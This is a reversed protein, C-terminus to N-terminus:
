QCREALAEIHGAEGEERSWERPRCVQQLTEDGQCKYGRRHGDGAEGSCTEKSLKDRDAVQLGEGHIIKTVRKLWAELEGVRERHDRLVTVLGIFPEGIRVGM